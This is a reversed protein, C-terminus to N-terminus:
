KIEGRLIAEYDFGTLKEAFSWIEPMMYLKFKTLERVLNEKFFGDLILSVVIMISQEKNPGYPGKCELEEYTESMKKWYEIHHSVTEHHRQIFEPEEEPKTANYHAFKSICDPNLKDRDYNKILNNLRMADFGFVHNSIYDTILKVQADREKM